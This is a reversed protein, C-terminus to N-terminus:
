KVIASSQIPVKIAKSRKDATTYTVLKEFLDLQVLSKGDSSKLYVSWEDFDDELFKRSTGDQKREVWNKIPGEQSTFTFSGGEYVVEGVAWGHLETTAKNINLSKKSKEGSVIVRM